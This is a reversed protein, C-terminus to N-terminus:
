LKKEMNTILIDTKKHSIFDYAEQSNNFTIVENIGLEKWNYMVSLADTVEHEDDVIIMKM